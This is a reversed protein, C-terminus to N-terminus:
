GHEVAFPPAPHETGLVADPIASLTLAPELSVGWAPEHACRAAMVVESAVAVADLAPLSQVALRWHGEVGPNLWKPVPPRMSARPPLWDPVSSRRQQEGTVRAAMHRRVCVNFLSQMSVPWSDSQSWRPLSREPAGCLRSRVRRNLVGDRHRALRHKIHKARTRRWRARPVHLPYPRRVLEDLTSSTSSSTQHWQELRM